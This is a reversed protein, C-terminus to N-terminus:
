EDDIDSISDDLKNIVESPADCKRRSRLTERAPELFAVDLDEALM